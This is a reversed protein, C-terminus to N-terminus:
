AGEKKKPLKTLREVMDAIQRREKETLKKDIVAEGVALLLSMLNPYQIVRQLMALYEADQDSDARMCLSGCSNRVDRKAARGFAKIEIRM